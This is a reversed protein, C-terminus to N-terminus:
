IPRKRVGHGQLRCPRAVPGTADNPRGETRSRDSSIGSSVRCLFGYVMAARWGVAGGALEMVFKRCRPRAAVAVRAVDRSMNTWSRTQDRAASDHAAFWAALAPSTGESAKLQRLAIRISAQAFRDAPMAIAEPGAGASVAKIVNRKMRVHEADGYRSLLRQFAGYRAPTSRVRAATATACRIRRISIRAPSLGARSRSPRPM